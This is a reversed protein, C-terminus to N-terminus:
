AKETGEDEPIGGISGGMWVGGLTQGSESLITQLAQDRHTASEVHTGDETNEVIMLCNPDEISDIVIPSHTTILLPRRPTAQAREM